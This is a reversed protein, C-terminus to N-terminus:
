IDKLKGSKCHMAPLIDCTRSGSNAWVIIACNPFKVGLADHILLGPPYRVKDMLVNLILSEGKKSNHNLTVAWNRGVLIM